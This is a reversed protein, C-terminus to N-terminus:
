RVLAVFESFETPVFIRMYTQIAFRDTMGAVYDVAGQIGDFGDPLQGPQAFHLTLEKVIRKAKVVQEMPLPEKLYVNEFLWEKLENMYVFMEDSMAIRPQDESHRVVDLVMASIRDGHSTGISNFREPVGEILRSRVADDLDHNLYAIRDSIRVVAAELTSTPEGDHASLDKRGKSHGGIGLRVEETLNLDTLIDVIRLSHEYHRFHEPAGSQGKLEGQLLEDLAQEGAHGFPTHGVDHGLAIAEILDENLRLARGITRAIQAVDLSHTLRTRYHDGIPEIFVQTKHKLRRFPKSHLIRDRDRQYCTRIPCPEEMRRRGASNQALMAYESLSAAERAETQERITM